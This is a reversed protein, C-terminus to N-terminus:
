WMAGIEVFLNRIEFGEVVAGGHWWGLMSRGWLYCALSFLFPLFDAAERFRVSICFGKGIQM